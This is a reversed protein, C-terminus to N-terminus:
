KPGFYGRPSIYGRIVTSTDEVFKCIQCSNSSCKPPNRSQFDSHMNMTGKLHQLEVNFESIISLFTAVRASTSFERRLLKHWSQVCPRSDTLIQTINKSERIFPAFHNISATISLAEIECPLWKKHHSKLKASFFHGLCMKEERRVFLISGIGEICGNHVIM